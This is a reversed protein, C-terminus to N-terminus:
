QWWLSSSGKMRAGFGAGCGCGKVIGGRVAGNDGRPGTCDVRDCGQGARAERERKIDKRVAGGQLWRRPSATYRTPCPTAHCLSRPTAPCPSTLRPTDSFSHNPARPQPPPPPLRTMCPTVRAEHARDRCRPSPGPAAGRPVFVRVGPYYHM